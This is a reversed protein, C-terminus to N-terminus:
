LQIPNYVLKYSPSAVKYLVLKVLLFPIWAQFSLHINAALLCPSFGRSTTLNAIHLPPNELELHELDVILPLHIYMPDLLLLQVLFSQKSLLGCSRTTKTLCTMRWVWFLLSMSTELGHPYGWIIWTMSSWFKTNFWGHNLPDGMNLFRRIYSASWQLRVINDDNNGTYEWYIYIYM